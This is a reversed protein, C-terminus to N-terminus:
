RVAHRPSGEPRAARGQRRSGDAVIGVITVVMGILVVFHALHEGATFGDHLGSAVTHMAVDALLGLMMIAAGLKAFSPVPPTPRTM